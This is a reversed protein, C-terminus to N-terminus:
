FRKIMIVMGRLEEKMLEHQLRHTDFFEFGMKQYFEVPGKSTDMAKLWVISKNNNKAITCTLQVLAKGIGKGAFNKKLYIRELELADQSKLTNIPADLNLKLFGAPLNNYYALYFVANADCLEAHLRETSFFKQLYWRGNDYWLDLYHDAYATVAVESLLEVDGADLKRISISGM